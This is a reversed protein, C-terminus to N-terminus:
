RRAPQLGLTTVLAEGEHESLFIKGAALRLAAVTRTLTEDSMKKLNHGANIVATSVSSVAAGRDNIIELLNM